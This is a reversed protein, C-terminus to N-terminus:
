KLNDKTNLKGTNVLEGSYSNGGTELNLQGMKWQM